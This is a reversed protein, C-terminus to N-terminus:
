RARQECRRQQKKNPADIVKLLLEDIDETPRGDRLLVNRFFNLGKVMLRQEHPGVYIVHQEERM